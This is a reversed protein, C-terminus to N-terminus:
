RGRVSGEGVRRTGHQVQELPQHRPARQVERVEVARMGHEPMRGDPAPELLFRNGYRAALTDLQHALEAQPPTLAEHAM